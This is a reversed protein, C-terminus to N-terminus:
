NSSLPITPHDFVAQSFKAVIQFLLPGPGYEIHLSRVTTSCNVSLTQLNFHLTLSFAHLPEFRPYYRRRPPATRFFAITVSALTDRLRLVLVCAQQAHTHQTHTHTSLFHTNVTHTHQSPNHTSLTHTPSHTDFLSHRNLFLTYRLRLV